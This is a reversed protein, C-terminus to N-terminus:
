LAYKAVLFKEISVIQAEDADRCVVIEAIDGDLRYYTQFSGLVISTGPASVDISIPETQTSTVVGNARLQLVGSFRLAEYLRPVNDHYSTQDSAVDNADELLVLGDTATANSLPVNGWLVVGAGTSAAYTSKWFLNAAGSVLGQNPDNSFRAVIAVFYSGIGFQLSSADAIELTQATANKPSFNLGPLAGFASASFTPAYFASAIADNHFLSRDKWTTVHANGDTMVGKAADLWLVTESIAIPSDAEVTADMPPPIAVDIPMSADLTAVDFTHSADDPEDYAIAGGCGVAFSVLLANTRV